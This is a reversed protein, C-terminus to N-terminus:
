TSLVKYIQRAFTIENEFPKNYYYGGCTKEKVENYLSSILFLMKGISNERIVKKTGDTYTSINHGTLGNKEYGRMKEFYETGIKQKTATAVSNDIIWKLNDSKTKEWICLTVIEFLLISADMKEESCLLRHLSEAKEFIKEQTRIDIGETLDTMFHEIEEVEGDDVRFLNIYQEYKEFFNSAKGTDLYLDFSIFKRLYRDIDLNDGYIKELSKRIQTKDMAIIVIVNEIGEFVHHLRELVKITYTPLCRDLEDVIIIIPRIKAIEAIEKRITLLVKNFSFYTDYEKIKETSLVNIGSDITEKLDIGIKKKVATTILAKGAVKILEGIKKKKKDSLIMTKDEIHDRMSSIISFVPEEYYDYEWCDYYFIFYKDGALEESQERVLQEKIKNLVFSKGSGWCGDIAFCCNKNNQTIIEILNIVKNIFEERNLVDEKEEM